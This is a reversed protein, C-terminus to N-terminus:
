HSFSGESKIYPRRTKKGLLSQDHSDSKDQNFLLASFAGEQEALALKSREEDSAAEDEDDRGARLKEGFSVSKDEEDEDDEGGSDGAGNSGFFPLTSSRELSSRSSGGSPSDARARKPV